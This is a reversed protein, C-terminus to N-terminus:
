LGELPTYQVTRGIMARRFSYVASDPRDCARGYSYEAGEPRDCGRWLFM